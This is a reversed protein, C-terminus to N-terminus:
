DSISRNSGEDIVADTAAPASRKATVGHGLAATEGPSAAKIPNGGGQGRPSKSKVSKSMSSRPDSKGMKM